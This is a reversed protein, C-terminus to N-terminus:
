QPFLGSHEPFDFHRPHPLPNVGRSKCGNIFCDLPM